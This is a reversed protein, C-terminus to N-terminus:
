AIKSTNFIEDETVIYDIKVDQQTAPIKKVIQKSYTLAITESRTSALYRDYYGYGYGLRQGNRTMAIAPVLMVDMETTDPCNGKPEMISFNGKELDSFSSIKKFVLNDDVVKSISLEKRSKLIEQLIDKTLVESGISYYAGIKEAKKFFNIKQLNKHIQESAIKIFEYSLLDRRDLLLRRLRAKEAKKDM